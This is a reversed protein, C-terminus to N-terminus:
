GKLGSTSVGRVIWRQGVVYLVLLPVIAIVSAAMLLEWDAGHESQFTTLGLTVTRLDESTIYLVPRLLENWNNIFAILFLTVSVPMTLPLYISWYIRFPSAGDVQAAEALEDPISRFAERYLFTGLTGVLWSPVILPLYSDAWGLWDVLVFEPIITVEIPVISSVLLLGFLAGRGPFSLKAFAFGALSGTLVQGLATLTAIFFSNLLFRDFNEEFLVESYAAFREDTWLRDPNLNPPIDFVSGPSKFSTVVMWIFPFVNLVAVTALVLYTLVVLPLRRASGM